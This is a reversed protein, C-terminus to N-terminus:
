NVFGHAVMADYVKDPLANGYPIAIAYEIFQEENIDIEAMIATAKDSLELFFRNASNSSWDASTDHTFVCQSGCHCRNNCKPCLTDHLKIALMKSMIIDGKM